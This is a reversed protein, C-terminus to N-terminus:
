LLTRIFRRSTYPTRVVTRAAAASVRRAAM